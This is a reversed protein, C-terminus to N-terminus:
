LGAPAEKLEVHMGLLWCHDLELDVKGTLLWHDEIRLELRFHCIHNRLDLHPLPVASEGGEEFGVLAIRVQCPSQEVM